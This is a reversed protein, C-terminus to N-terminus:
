NDSIKVITNWNRTTINKGYLKELDEMGKPTSSISLDLYSIIVNSYAEIIKFSSDASVYPLKIKNEVPDKSFSIYLRIKDHFHIESFPNKNVLEIIKQHPILIVPIPFGFFKLLENELNIELKELNQTNIEAIFNGSNLLTKINSFGTEELIEKLQSMPVKHKGGVNIGRLFGAIKM